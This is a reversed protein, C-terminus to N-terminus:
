TGRVAPHLRVQERYQRDADPARSLLGSRARRRRALTVKHSYLDTPQDLKKPKHLYMKIASLLSM